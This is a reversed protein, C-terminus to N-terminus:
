RLDPAQLVVLNLDPVHVLRLREDVRAHGSADGHGGTRVLDAERPLLFGELPLIHPLRRQAVALFDV